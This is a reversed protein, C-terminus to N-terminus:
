ERGKWIQRKKEVKHAKGINAFHSNRRKDTLTDPLFDYSVPTLNCSDIKRRSAVRLVNDRETRRLKKAGYGGPDVIM